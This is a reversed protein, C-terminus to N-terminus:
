DNRLSKYMDHTDINTFTKVLKRIEEGAKRAMEGRLELDFNDSEKDQLEYMKDMLCAMFIKISSRFGEDTFCPKGGNSFEYEWLTNEIENLIPSLKKGIM